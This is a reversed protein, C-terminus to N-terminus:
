EAAVRVEATDEGLLSDLPALLSDIQALQEAETKAKKPGKPSKAPKPAEKVPKTPKKTATPKDKAKNYSRKSPKSGALRQVVQTLETVLELGRDITGEAVADPAISALALRSKNILVELRRVRYEVDCAKSSVPYNGTRNRAM